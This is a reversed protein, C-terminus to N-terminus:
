GRCAPAGVQARGRQRLQHHLRVELAAVPAVVDVRQGVDVALAAVRHEVGEGLVERRLGLPRPGAAAQEDPGRQGVEDVGGVQEGARQAVVHREHRAVAGVEVAAAAVRHPEVERAGVLVSMRSPMRRMPSTTASCTASYPVSVPLAGSGRPAPRRPPRSPSAWPARTTVAAAAAALPGAPSPAVHAPDGHQLAPARELPLHRQARARPHSSASAAARGRPPRRDVHAGVQDRAQAVACGSTANTAICPRSPSSPVTWSSSSIRPM